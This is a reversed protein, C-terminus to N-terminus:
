ESRRSRVIYNGDTAAEELFFRKEESLIGWIYKFGYTTRWEGRRRGSYTRVWRIQPDDRRTVRVTLAQGQTVRVPEIVRQTNAIRREAENKLENCGSSLARVAEIRAPVLTEDAENRLDTM